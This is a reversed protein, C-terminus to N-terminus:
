EQTSQWPSGGRFLLGVDLSGLFGGRAPNYGGAAGIRISTAKGACIRLDLAATPFVTLGLGDQHVFDARLAIPLALGPAPFLTRLSPGAAFHKYSGGTGLDGLFQLGWRGNFWTEGMAGVRLGGDALLPASDFGAYAGVAYRFGSSDLEINVPIEQGPGVKVQTSGTGYECWHCSVEHSGIPVITRIKARGVKEGDIRVEASHPTSDTVITGDFSFSSPSTKCSEVMLGVKHPRYGELTYTVDNAGYPVQARAEGTAAEATSIEISAHAPQVSAEVFGDLHVLVENEEGILVDVTRANEGCAEVRAMVEHEGGGITREVPSAGWSQGDVLVEAGEPTTTVLLSGFPAALALVGYQYKGTEFSARVDAKGDGALSLDATHKGPRLNVLGMGEVVRVPRGDVNAAAAQPIPRVEVWASPSGGFVVSGVVEALMARSAERGSSMEFSTVLRGSRLDVAEIDMQLVSVTSDTRASVLDPDILQEDIGDQLQELLKGAEITTSRADISIAYRAQVWGDIITTTVPEFPVPHFSWQEGDRGGSTSGPPVAQVACGRKALINNAAHYLANDIPLRESDNGTVVEVPLQLIRQGSRLAPSSEASEEILSTAMALAAATNADGCELGYWAITGDSADVTRVSICVAETPLEDLAETLYLGATARHPRKFISTQLLYQPPQWQYTDAPARVQVNEVPLDFAGVSGADPERLQEERELGAEPRHAGLLDREVVRSAGSSTLHQTIAAKTFADLGRIDVVVPAGRPIDGEVREIVDLFGVDGDSTLKLVHPDRTAAETPARKAWAPSTSSLLALVAIPTTMRM